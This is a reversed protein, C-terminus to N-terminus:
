CPMKNKNGRSKRNRCPQNKGIPNPINLISSKGTGVGSYSSLINDQIGKTTLYKVDNIISLNTAKNAIKEVEADNAFSPLKRRHLFMTVDVGSAAAGMSGQSGDGSWIEIGDVTTEFSLNTIRIGDAAPKELNWDFVRFTVDTNQPEFDTFTVRKVYRYFGDARKIVAQKGNTVSDLLALINSYDNAVGSLYYGYDSPVDEYAIRYISNNLEVVDAADAPTYALAAAITAATVNANVTVAGYEDIVADGILKIGIFEKDAVPTNHTNMWQTVGARNLSILESIPIEVITLKQDTVPATAGDAGAPGQIGQIGQLGQAGPNGKPGILGQVGDIGQVGQIGQLGQDGKPGQFVGADFWATGNWVWLHNIGDVPDPITWGDGITNGTAPLDSELAKGGLLTVTTGDAGAAGTTGTVGTVGQIGQGGTVGQIGQIGDAGAAGTLGIDGKDGKFLYNEKLNVNESPILKFVAQNSELFPDVSSSVTFEINTRDLAVSQGQIIIINHLDTPFVFFLIGNINSTLEYGQSRKEAIITDINKQYQYLVGNYIAYEPNLVFQLLASDAVAFTTASTAVAGNYKLQFILPLKKLSVTLPVGQLPDIWGKVFSGTVFTFTTSNLKGSNDSVKPAHSDGSQIIKFEAM